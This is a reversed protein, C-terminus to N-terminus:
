KNVRLRARDIPRTKFQDAAFGGEDILLKFESFLEFRWKRITAKLEAIKATDDVKTRLAFEAITRDVIRNAAEQILKGHDSHVFEAVLGAKEIREYLEKDNLGSYEV